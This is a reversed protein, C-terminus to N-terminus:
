SEQLKRNNLKLEPYHKDACQPCISHTFEVGTHEKVYSEVQSWYGKDDTELPIVKKEPSVIECSVHPLFPAWVSFECQGEGLYSAGCKMM